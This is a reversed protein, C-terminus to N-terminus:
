YDRSIRIRNIDEWECKPCKFGDFIIIDGSSFFRKIASKEEYEKVRKLVSYCDPCIYAYANFQFDLERM